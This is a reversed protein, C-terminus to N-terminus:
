EEEPSDRDDQESEGSSDGMTEVDDRQDSVNSNIGKEIEIEKARQKANKEYDGGNAELTEQTRTTLGLSLRKEAATVDKVPDISGWADGTWVTNLYAMRTQYDDLFGPANLYGKSIAEIIVSEYIPQCFSDAFWKRRQRFSRQAENLAARSASYSSTFHKILLEHPIGLAVGIQRTVALIFPDFGSNPRGPNATSVAEGEALGITSGYGLAYDRDSPKSEEDEGDYFDIGTSGDPSTIFVTFLGAVVAAQLEAETYRGLQKLAEIVPSLIPRGRSETILRKKFCHIFDKTLGDMSDPRIKRWTVSQKTSHPHVNTVHYIKPEGYLGREIGGSIEKTDMNFNPNCVRSSDVLRWCTGLFDSRRFQRQAFCDGSILSSIFATAQMQYFNQEQKADSLKSCAWVKFIREAEAQWAAAQESELGLFESDIMSQVRLGTGIVNEELTSIAGCAIPNNRDLDASRQNLIPHDHLLIEDPDSRYTDWTAAYKKKRSAGSFGSLANLRMRSIQRDLAKRPNAWEYFRDIVNTM